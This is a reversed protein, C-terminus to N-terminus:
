NDLGSPILCWKQAPMKSSQYNLMEEPDKQQIQNSLVWDGVQLNSTHSTPKLRKQPSNRPKPSM